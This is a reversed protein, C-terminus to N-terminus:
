QTANSNIWEISDNPIDRYEQEIEKCMSVIANFDVDKPELSYLMNRTDVLKKEAPHLGHKYRDTKIKMSVLALTDSVAEIAVDKEVITTM